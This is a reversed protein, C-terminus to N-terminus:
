VLTIYNDYPGM